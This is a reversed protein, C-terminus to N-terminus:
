GLAAKRSIAGSAVPQIVEQPSAAGVHAGLAGQQDQGTPWPPPQSLGGAEVPASAVLEGRGPDPGWLLKGGPLPMPSLGLAAVPAGALGGARM